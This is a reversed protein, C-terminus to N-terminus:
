FLSTTYFSAPLKARRAPMYGSAIVQRLAPLSFGPYISPDEEYNPSIGPNGSASELKKERTYEHLSTQTVGLEHAMRSLSDNLKQNSTYHAGGKAMMRVDVGLNKLTSRLALERVMAATDETPSVDYESAMAEIQLRDEATYSDEPGAKYRVDSGKSDILKGGETEGAEIVVANPLTLHEGPSLTFFTDVSNIAAPNGNAKIMSALNSVILRNNQDWTGAYHGEVQSNPTFHITSRPYKDLRKASSPYLVINGAADREIPHETSHVLAVNEPKLVEPEATREIWELYETARTAKTGLESIKIERRMAEVRQNVITTATEDGVLSATVLAYADLDVSPVGRENPTGVGGSENMYLTAALRDLLETAAPGYQGSAMEASLARSAEAKDPALLAVTDLIGEPTNASVITAEASDSAGDFYESWIANDQQDIFDLRLPDQGSGKPIVYPKDAPITVEQRNRFVVEHGAIEYAPRQYGHTDTIEHKQLTNAVYEAQSATNFAHEEHIATPDVVPQLQQNYESM